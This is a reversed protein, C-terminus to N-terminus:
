VRRTAIDGCKECQLVYILGVQAGWETVTFQTKDAWKHECPPAAPTGWVLRWLWLIM